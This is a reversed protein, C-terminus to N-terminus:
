LVALQLTYAAKMFKLLITYQVYREISFCITGILIFNRSEPRILRYAIVPLLCGYLIAVLISPVFDGPQPVGGVPAPFTTLPSVIPSTATASTTM